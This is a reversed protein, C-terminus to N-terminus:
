LFLGLLKQFHNKFYKFSFLVQSFINARFYKIFEFHLLSPQHRFFKLFVSIMFDAINVDLVVSHKYVSDVLSGATQGGIDATGNALDQRLEDDPRVVRPTYFLQANASSDIRVSYLAADVKLQIPTGNYTLVGGVTMRVPQPIALESGDPQVAYVPIQNAPTVPDTDPLGIYLKGL